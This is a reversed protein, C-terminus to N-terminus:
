RWPKEKTYEKSCIIFCYPCEFYEANGIDPPPPMEVAEDDPGRATPAYISESIHSAIDAPLKPDLFTATTPVSLDAASPPPRLPLDSQVEPKEKQVKKHDKVDTPVDDQAHAVKARHRKAHAFVRRRNTIANSMRQLLLDQELTDVNEGSPLFQRFLQEVHARDFFAYQEFVDVGTEVDLKQFTLAKASVARTTSSRIRSALQYLRNLIDKIENLCLNIEDDDSEAYENDFEDGPQLEGTENSFKSEYFQQTGKARSNVLSILMMQTSTTWLTSEVLMSRMDQLLLEIVSRVTEAERLRYQLSAHGTVFLGLNSAWLGFRDAEHLLVDSLDQNEGSLRKFLAVVELGTQKLIDSQNSAAMIQVLDGTNQNEDVFCKARHTPYNALKM